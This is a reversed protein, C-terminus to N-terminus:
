NGVPVALSCWRGRELETCATHLNHQRMFAPGPGSELRRRPVFPSKSALIWSELLRRGDQGFLAGEALLAAHFLSLAM